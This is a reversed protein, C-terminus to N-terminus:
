SASPVPEPTVADAAAAPIEIDAYFGSKANILLSMPASQGSGFMFSLNVFTGPELAGTVGTLVIRYESEFGVNVVEKHPLPINVVGDVGVTKAAAVGDLEDDTADDTNIITMLVTARSTDAPDVVVTANRIQLSGVDMSRGNGSDGQANTAADFGTACGSLLLVAASLFAAAAINKRAMFSTGKLHIVLEFLRIGM